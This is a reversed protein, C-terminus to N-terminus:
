ANSQSLLYLGLCTFSVMVALMWYQSRAALKPDRYIALAKDHALTLGTIHGIVLAGVQVYWVANASIVTYDIGGGATGFLDSGNGLPDSLLYTVQAQEQYVLLSFYHAILYALAIPILSHAFGRALERIPPSGTVTHMGRIGLMYIAMVGAVAVLLWITQTVQLAFTPGLGLDRLRELTSNLASALAGEQAGDFTTTGISALVLAASGAM